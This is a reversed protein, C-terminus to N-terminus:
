ILGMKVVAMAAETRNKAGLKKMAFRLNDKITNPSLSLAEGIGQNTLGQAVLSLIRVQQASLNDNSGLISQGETAHLSPGARDAPAAARETIDRASVVITPDARSKSLLRGISEFLHWSGDKHRVRYQVRAVGKPNQLLSRLAAYVRPLDDEHVIDVPSKGIREEPSVGGVDRTRPSAYLVTGRLDVVFVVDGLNEILTRFFGEPREELTSALALRGLARGLAPALALIDPDPQRLERGLFLLVGSVREGFLLPFTFAARLGAKRAQSARLLSGDALVDAVWEAQGSAWVRGTLGQGKAVGISKAVTLFEVPTDLAHWAAARRLLSADEDVVWAEGVVFRFGHCITRLLDPGADKLSTAQAVIAAVELEVAAYAMKSKLNGSPAPM